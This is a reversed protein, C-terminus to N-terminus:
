RSLMTEYRGDADLFKQLNKGLEVALDREKIKGYATGGANPEHGPVILIRIKRHAPTTTAAEVAASHLDALTKPHHEIALAPVVFRMTFGAAALGATLLIIRFRARNM